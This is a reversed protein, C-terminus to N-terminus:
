LVRFKRIECRLPSRVRFKSQFSIFDVDFVRIRVQQVPRSQVGDGAAGHRFDAIGFGLSGHQTELTGMALLDQM